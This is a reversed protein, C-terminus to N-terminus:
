SPTKTTTPLLSPHSLNHSKRVQWAILSFAIALFVIVVILSMVWEKLRNWQWQLSSDNPPEPPRYDFTPMHYVFTETDETM